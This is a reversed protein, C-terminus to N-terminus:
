REIDAAVLKGAADYVCYGGYRTMANYQNRARFEFTEITEFANNEGRTFAAPTTLFNPFIVDNPDDLQQRLAIECSVIQAHRPDPEPRTGAAAFLTLFAAGVMLGAITKGIMAFM